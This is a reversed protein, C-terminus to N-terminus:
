RLTETRATGTLAAPSYTDLQGHMMKRVVSFRHLTTIGVTDITTETESGALMVRPVILTFSSSGSDITRRITVSVLTGVDGATTTRIQADGDFSLTQDGRTYVLHPQGDPGSTTYAVHLGDGSLEYTTPANEAAHVPAPGRSMMAAVAVAALAKTPALRALTV